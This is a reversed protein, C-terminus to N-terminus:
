ITAKQLKGFKGSKRLAKINQLIESVESIRQNKSIQKSKLVINQSNNLIIQVKEIYREL